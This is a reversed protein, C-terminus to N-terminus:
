IGGGRLNCPANKSASVRGRRGVTGRDLKSSCMTVADVRGQAKYVGGLRHEVTSHKYCCSLLWLRDSVM